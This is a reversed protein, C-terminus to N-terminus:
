LALLIKTKLGFRLFSSFFVWFSFHPLYNFLELSDKSTCIIIYFILSFALPNTLYGGKSFKSEEYHLLPFILDRDWTGKKTAALCFSL